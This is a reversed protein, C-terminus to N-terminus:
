IDAKYKFHTQKNKQSCRNFMRFVAHQGIVLPSNFSIIIIFYTNYFNTANGILNPNKNFNNLYRSLYTVM